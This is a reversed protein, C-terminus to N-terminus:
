MSTQRASKLKPLSPGDRLRLFMVCQGRTVILTDDPIEYNRSSVLTVCQPLVETRCESNRPQFRSMSVPQIINELISDIDGHSCYLVRFLGRGIGSVKKINQQGHM